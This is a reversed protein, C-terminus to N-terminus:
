QADVLAQLEAQIAKISEKTEGLHLFENAQFGLITHHNINFEVRYGNAMAQEVDVHKVRIGYGKYGSAGVFLLHPGRIITYRQNIMLM